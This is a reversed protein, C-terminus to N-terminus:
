FLCCLSEMCEVVFSFCVDTVFLTRRGFLPHLQCEELLTCCVECDCVVDEWLFVVGFDGVIEMAVSLMRRLLQHCRRGYYYRGLIERTDGKSM